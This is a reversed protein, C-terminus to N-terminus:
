GDTVEYKLVHQRFAETQLRFSVQVVDPTIRVNAFGWISRETTEAVPGSPLLRQVLSRAMTRWFAPFPLDGILHVLADRADAVETTRATLVCGSDDYDANVRCQTFPIQLVHRKM